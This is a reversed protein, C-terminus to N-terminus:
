LFARVSEFEAIPLGRRAHPSILLLRAGFSSAWSRAASEFELQDDIWVARDPAFNELDQQIAQLKWWSEGGGPGDCVLVPWEQGALGIAPCLYKPAMGEWSTLWVCRLGPRRALQNLSEVLECAYTVDLFGADSSRWASVWDTTGTAGFPCIVGDVDLYLSINRM